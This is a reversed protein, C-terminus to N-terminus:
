KPNERKLKGNSKRDMMFLLHSGIQWLKSPVARYFIRSKM